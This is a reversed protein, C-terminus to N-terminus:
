MVLNVMIACMETVGTSNPTFVFRGRTQSAALRDEPYTPSRTEFSYGSHCLLVGSKRRQGICAGLCCRCVCTCM